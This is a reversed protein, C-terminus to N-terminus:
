KGKFMIKHIPMTMPFSSSVGRDDEAAENSTKKFLYSGSLYGGGHGSNDGPLPFSIFSDGIELNGFTLKAVPSPGYPKGLKESFADIADATEVLSKGNDDPLDYFVGARLLVGITDERNTTHLNNAHILRTLAGVLAENSITM